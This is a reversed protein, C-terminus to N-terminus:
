PAQEGLLWTDGNTVSLLVIEGGAGAMVANGEPPYTMPTLQTWEGGTLAWTDHSPEGAGGIFDWGGFLVVTQNWTAVAFGYRAPPSVPSALSTWTSGDWEWTDIGYSRGSAGIQGIGAEGFLIVRDGVTVMAYTGSPAPPSFPPTRQTWTVGDWEWTDGLAISSGDPSTGPITSGGFIVLKNGLSATAYGQGPPRVATSRLSWRTGDWEWTETSAKGDSDYGGFLVVKDGRPALASYNRVPPRASTALAVWVAGDWEWVTNSYLLAKGGVAMMTGGGTPSVLRPLWVEGDWEWTENVRSTVV